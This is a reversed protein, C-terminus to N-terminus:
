RVYILFSVTAIGLRDLPLRCLILVVSVICCSRTLLRIVGMVFSHDSAYFVVGSLFTLFVDPIYGRASRLVKVKAVLKEFSVRPLSSGVAPADTAAPGGLNNGLNGTYSACPVRDPTPETRGAVASPAPFSPLTLVDQSVNRSVSDSVVASSAIGQSIRSGTSAFHAELSQSFSAFLEKVQDFTVSQVDSVPVPNDVSVFVPPDSTVSPLSPSSLLDAVSAPPVEVDVTVTQSTLVVKQRQKSLLKRKHSPRHKVYTVMIDDSVDICEAYRNDTDCDVGLCVTCLSHFDHTLSSM